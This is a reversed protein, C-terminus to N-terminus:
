WPHSPDDEIIRDGVDRANSDALETIFVEMHQADSELQAESRLVLRAWIRDDDPQYKLNSRLSTLSQKKSM